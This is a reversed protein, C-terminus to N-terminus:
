FLRAVFALGIFTLFTMDSKDYRVSLRRYERIKGFVREILGRRVYLTQDYEIPVKRNKRGPIVAECNQGYLFSRFADSDYGRDALIRCGIVGNVLQKAHTIDAKNGASLFGDVV